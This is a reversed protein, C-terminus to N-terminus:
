DTIVRFSKIVQDFGARETEFTAELAACNVNYARGPVLVIVKRSRVSVPNGADDNLTFHMEAGQGPINGLMVIDKWDIGGSPDVAQVEEQVSAHLWGNRVQQDLDTQQKGALQAFENVTVNCNGGTSQYNPTHFEVRTGDAAGTIDQATWGSLQSIEFRFESSRYITEASAAAPVILLATLLLGFKHSRM